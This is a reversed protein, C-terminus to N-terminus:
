LCVNAQEKINLTKEEEIEQHEYMSCQYTFWALFLLLSIGNQKNIFLNQCQCITLGKEKNGLFLM